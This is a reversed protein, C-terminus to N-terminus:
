AGRVQLVLKVSDKAGTKKDSVNVMVVYKGASGAPLFGSIAGTEPSIALGKPAGSLAFTLEDGNRFAMDYDETSVLHGISAATEIKTEYYSGAQAAPVATTLILPHAVEMLNSSGSERGAADIAAVRYYPRWLAGPLQVHTTNFKTELLLNPPASKTGAKGANYQYPTDSATFGREASGYIRCKVPKTGNEGPEWSLTMTRSMSDFRGAVNAPVAPALASFSFVPSWAGWVGEKSRARARWYYTQGPNFLGAYPTEFSATGRNGTRQVLRNFTPSLPWRMDAYESLQFQYDAPIEGSSPPAWQFRVKTGSATGGAAPYIATEPRGPIAAAGCERWVHTIGVKGAGGTEDTYLFSNEGLAVGPLSLEAMQLTSQLHFGKLCMVPDEADSKLDLRLLYAYRADDAPPFLANLDLLWRGYDGQYSAGAKRWTKGGDFSVSAVVHQRNM